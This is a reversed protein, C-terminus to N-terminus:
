SIIAIGEKFKYIGNKISSQSILKSKNINISLEWIDEKKKLIINLNKSNFEYKNFDVYPILLNFNLSEIEQFNGTFQVSQNKWFNNKISEEITLKYIDNPGYAVEYLCPENRWDIGKQEANNKYNERVTENSRCAQCMHLNIHKGYRPCFWQKEEKELVKNEDKTEVINKWDQNKLYKWVKEAREWIKGERNESKSRKLKPNIKKIAEDWNGDLEVFDKITTITEHPNTILDDYFIPLLPIDPHDLRWKALMTSVRIFMSPTHVVPKDDGVRFNVTFYRTLKEQSKAVDRPHRLLLIIKDVYKPDSKALGQSVLKIVKNKSDQLELLKQNPKIHSPPDSIGRVTWICEWFGNPNMDKSERLEEKWNPNQNEWQYIRAQYENDSENSRKQYIRNIREEQPFKSGIINEEGLATKMLLMTLSTGSRPCGTIIIM